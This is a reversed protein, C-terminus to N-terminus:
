LVADRPVVLSIFCSRACVSAVLLVSPVPVASLDRCLASFLVSFLLFDCRHRSSGLRAVTRYQLTDAKSLPLIAAQQNIALAIYSVRWFLLPSLSNHNCVASSVVPVPRCPSRGFTSLTIHSLRSRAVSLRLCCANIERKC